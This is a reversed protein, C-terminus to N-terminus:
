RSLRLLYGSGWDTRTFLRQLAMAGRLFCRGSSRQLHRMINLYADREIGSAATAQVLNEPASRADLMRRYGYEGAWETLNALPFGYCEFHEIKLNSASALALLAAKDYRRFHGAWIDGAGWRSSHAPITLLLKGGPKLLRSWELLAAYDDEIHELVDFACVVSFREEGLQLLTELFRTKPQLVRGIKRALALASASTEIGTCCFGRHSFDVLLAGSGCGIELVCGSALHRFQRFIRDRRLLYRLSPVWKLDPAMVGFFSDFYPASVGDEQGAGPKM